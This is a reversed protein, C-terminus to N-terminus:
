RQLAYRSFITYLAYGIGSGLGFLLGKGTLAAGGTIGSVLGCGVFALVVAIIKPVTIKEKFLLLSLLMVITPATYLLVAAVSLSMMNIANFYCFTFFLLSLLGSGLFCWLDKLKVRFQKAGTCLILIAFCVASIGCRLIIAGNSGIGAAELHRTFIGIFGWFFGAGLVSLSYRNM